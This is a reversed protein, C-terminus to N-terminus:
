VISKQKFIDFTKLKSETLGKWHLAILILNVWYIKTFPLNGHKLKWPKSEHYEDVSNEVFIELVEDKWKESVGVM